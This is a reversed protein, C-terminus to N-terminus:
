PMSCQLIKLAMSLQELQSFNKYDLGTLEHIKDLRYRITNKHQSLTDAAASIECDSQLYQQLTLLLSSNNEIDYDAVPELISRAYRQMERSEAFPFIFQLTGLQSYRTFETKDRHKAAAAYLSELLSIKFEDPTLHCQSVGCRTCPEDELLTRLIHTILSDTCKKAIGEESHIYFFGRDHLVLTNGPMNLSSKLFRRHLLDFSFDSLSDDTEAYLTFFQEGQSPNLKRACAAIESETLDDTLIQNIINQSFRVDETFECRRSIEYILKEVYIEQSEILFVPFNKSDAYRLVSDHIPLHFVNKIVLGSTGKSVLHKVADSILYPNDKAYLFSSIVLQNEQFNSHIYKDKLVLDMEYDLIGASTISRTMGGAGAILKMGNKFTQYFDSVTYNM